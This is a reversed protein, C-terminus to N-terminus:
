GLVVRRVVSRGQVGDQRDGPRSTGTPVTNMQDTGFERISPKRAAVATALPRLTASPMRVRTTDTDKATLACASASPRRTTNVAAPKSQRSGPQEMHRAM